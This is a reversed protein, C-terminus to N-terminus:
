LGNCRWEGVLCQVLGAGLGKIGEPRGCSTTVDAAWGRDGCGAPRCPSVEIYNQDWIALEQQLLESQNGFKSVLRKLHVLEFGADELDSQIHVRERYDSATEVFTNIFRHIILTFLSYLPLSLTAPTGCRLCSIQFAGSNFSNLM